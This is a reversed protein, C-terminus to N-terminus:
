HDGFSSRMWRFGVSLSRILLNPDSRSPLAQNPFFCGFHDSWNPQFDGMWPPLARPALHAPASPDVEVLRPPASTHCRDDSIAPSTGCRARPTSEAGERPWNQSVTGERPLQAEGPISGGSRGLPARGIQLGSDAQRRRPKSREKRRKEPASPQNQSKFSTIRRWSSRSTVKGTKGSNALRGLEQCNLWNGYWRTKEVPRM